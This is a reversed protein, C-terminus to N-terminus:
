FVLTSILTFGVLYLCSIVSLNVTTFANSKAVKKITTISMIAYIILLLPIWYQMRIASLYLDHNDQSNSLYSDFFEKFIPQRYISDVYFMFSSNTLGSGVLASFGMSYQKNKFLFIMTLTEPLASPISLIISAASQTPINFIGSMNDVIGSNIYSFWVLGASFLVFFLWLLWKNFRHFFNQNNSPKHIPTKKCLTWIIFAIWFIFPIISIVSINWGPIYLYKGVQPILVFFSFLFYFVLLSYILVKNENDIKVLCEDYIENITKSKTKKRNKFCWIFFFVIMTLSLLFIQISNSGTENYISFLPDQDIAGYISGVLEPFSTVLSMVVGGMFIKSIRIKDTLSELTMTLLKAMAIVCCAFLIFWFIIWWGNFVSDNLWHLGPM